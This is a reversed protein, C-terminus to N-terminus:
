ADSTGPLTYTLPTGAPTAQDVPTTVFVPATNGPPPTSVIVSFSYSESHTPDQLSFTIAHTGTSSVPPNFTFTNPSASFSVWSPM